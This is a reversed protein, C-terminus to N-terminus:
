HNEKRPECIWLVIELDDLMERQQQYLDDDAWGIVGRRENMIKLEKGGKGADTAKRAFDNVAEQTFTKSSSIQFIPINYLGRSLSFELIDDAESDGLFLSFIQLSEPVNAHVNYTPPYPSSESFLVGSALCLLKLNPSDMFELFQFDPQGAFFIMLSQLCALRFRPPPESGYIDVETSYSLLTIHIAAQCESLLRLTSPVTLLINSRLCTLNQLTAPQPIFVSNSISLHHYTLAMSLDLNRLAPATGLLSFLGVTQEETNAPDMATIDIDIDFLQIATEFSTPLIARVTNLDTRITLSKWRPMHSGLSSFLDMLYPYGDNEENEDEFYADVWMHITIPRNASRHLWVKVLSIPPLICKRLTSDHMIIQIESWFRQDTVIIQNWHQCVLRINTILRHPHPRGESKAILFIETLVENPITSPSQSCLSRLICLSINLSSHLQTLQSDCVDDTHSLPVSNHSIVVCGTVTRVHLTVM